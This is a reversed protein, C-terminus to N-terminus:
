RDAYTMVDYVIPSTDNENRPAFGPALEAPKGELLDDLAQPSEALRSDLRFSRFVFPLGDSRLPDPTSMIHFHLHPADTNGSNGVSGIVQGATLRDGPKVKVAGTQIHAYLAYNGDGLDQVIHNGAYQELPLGTPATGPVQEPLGDLTAVVPGDGVALIDAGFYPYSKVDAKDGTFLRGDPGLQVYDIAFREAAWIEGNIPNLANRHATMDCCSNGDLWNPGALPPAIVIPKRTQVTVPAVNETMAAPFLPPMPEPVSIAVAHVLQDPVTEDPALAVDLWVFATQAPGIVTTPTPNGIVRTWYALRDGPLNLLERDGARVGVSTLTVDQALTNTLQLEYALHVKGDTGPVPIPAALVRGVLPTAVSPGSPAASPTSTVATTPPAASTAVPVTDRAASCAATLLLAALSTAAIVPRFHM